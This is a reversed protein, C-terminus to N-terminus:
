EAFSIIGFYQPLHFNPVPHEIKNWMGYHEKETEDGCKYFNGAANEGTFSMNYLTELLELPLKFAIQWFDMGYSGVVPQKVSGAITIRSLKEIEWYRRKDRDQTGFGALVTGLPNIEINIYKDFIAPFPNMFFEVCSDKYVPDNAKTYTAKIKKEFSDFRVYISKSSLLMRAEVRPTYGNDMWLYTDILARHALVWREDTLLDEPESDIRKAIYIKKAKIDM